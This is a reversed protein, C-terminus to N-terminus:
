RRAGEILVRIAWRTVDRAEAEDVELVDKFVVMAETGIILALAKKLKDFDGPKFEKKAPALAADILPSRRNQRAPMKDNGGGRSGVSLRREMSTALMMRLPVENASMMDHFATDVRTMRAVPDRTEPTGSMMDAKFLTEADPSSLDLAAELLLAEVKPFYRYATARSIHAEAAVEDLSPKRGENMLKAAAQLLDKRTRWKQNPRGAPKKAASKKPEM